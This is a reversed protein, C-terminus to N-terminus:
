KTRLRDKLERLRNLPENSELLECLHGLEAEILTWNLSADRCSVVSEVDGWDRSRGAFAKTVIVDEASATKLRVGPSFEYYSARAVSRQEFPFGALAVDIGIGDGTQLLLIRNLLAFERADARRPSYDQLLLDIYTSEFGFGSLLTVDVDATVRARGWRVVALGGIICFSWGRNEFNRSLQAAAELVARM